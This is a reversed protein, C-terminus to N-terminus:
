SVGSDIIAAAKMMGRTYSDSFDGEPYSRIKEALEYAHEAELHAMLNVAYEDSCIWKEQYARIFDDRISM